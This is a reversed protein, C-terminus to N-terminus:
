NRWRARRGSMLFADVFRFRKESPKNVAVTCVVTSVLYALDNLIVNPGVRELVEQYTPLM